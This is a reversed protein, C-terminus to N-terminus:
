GASDADLKAQLSQVAASVKDCKKKLDNNVAIVKATAEETDNIEGEIKKQPYTRVCVRL